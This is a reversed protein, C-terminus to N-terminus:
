YSSFSEFLERDNEVMVTDPTMGVEIGEVTINDITGKVTETNVTRDIIEAKKFLLRSM